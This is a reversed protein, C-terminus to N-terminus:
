SLALISLLWKKEKVHKRIALYKIDIHKSRSRIKNNTGLLMAVSNDYFIRLLRYISNM